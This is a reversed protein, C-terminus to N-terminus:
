TELFNISPYRSLLLKKKLMYMQTKKGKVDETIVQGDRIYRFDCVYETKRYKKGNHSFDDILTYPVQLELFFIECRKSMKYLECFRKAEKLSHFKFRGKGSKTFISKGDSYCIRNNYKTKKNRRWM